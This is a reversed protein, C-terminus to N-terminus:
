HIGVGSRHHLLQPRDGEGRRYEPPRLLHDGAIEIPARQSLANRGLELLDTVPLHRFTTKQVFAIHIAGGLDRDDAL